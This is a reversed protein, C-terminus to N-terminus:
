FGYLSKLNHRVKDSLGNYVEDWQGKLNKRFNTMVDIFMTSLKEGPNHWVAFASLLYALHPVMAQPNHRIVNCLGRYAHVKEIDQRIRSLHFCWHPAFHPLYQAVEAPAIIGIRGITIAINEHLAPLLGKALLIPVLTGMLRPVHTQIEPGTHVAIEGLAWSANNCVRAHAPVLNRDILPLFRELHPKILHIASKALDGLLAFASQRIDVVSSQACVHLMKLLQTNKVAEAIREGVAEAISSMLDLSAIIFEGCSLYSPNEQTSPDSEAAQLETLNAQLLHLCRNFVPPAHPLFGERVASVISTICEMLPLMKDNDNSMRSWRDMLPPVIMKILDPRNLARRVSEALTGIADYLILKNKARYHVSAYMLSKVIDPLYVILREKACEELTSFASCASEQVRKSSDLMRTLLSMLMPKFYMNDDRESMIWKTYRSLTWCTISRVLPQPDSLLRSVHPILKPLHQRLGDMCGDAVAGLALVGSERVPWESSQLTTQLVPLLFGLIEHKYVQALTDLSAACCKRLNWETADDGDEWDDDDDDDETEQAGFSVMRSAAAFQPRIDSDRDEVSDDETLVHRDVENYVMGKVLTPVLFRLYKKLLVFDAQKSDCYVGWFECAELAIDEDDNKTSTIMYQIVKEMHPKLFTCRLDLLTVFARCVLEQIAKDSDGTLRQLGKMFDAINSNLVPPMEVMIFTNICSLANFRVTSSPHHLSQIFKPILFNLPRDALDSDLKRGVDACIKRMADYASEVVRKNSDDLMQALQKLMPVWGYNADEKIIASVIGGVLSRIKNHPHGVCQLISKGIYMKDDSDLTSWRAKINTKLYLGACVRTDPKEDNLFVYIFTLYNCFKPHQRVNQLANYRREHEANDNSTSTRFLPVIQHLGQEDPSWTSSAPGSNNQHPGAAAAM